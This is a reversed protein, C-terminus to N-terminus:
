SASVLLLVLLLDANKAPKGALFLLRFQVQTVLAQSNHGTAHRPHWILDVANM